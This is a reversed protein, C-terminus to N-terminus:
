AFSGRLCPVNTSDTAESVSLFLPLGLASVEIGGTVDFPLVCLLFAVFVLAATRSGRGFPFTAPLPLLTVLASVLLSACGSAGFPLKRFRFTSSSCILSASGGAM